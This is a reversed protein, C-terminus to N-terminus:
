TSNLSLIIIGFIFLVVGVALVLYTKTKANKFEGYVLGWLYGWMGNSYGIGTSIVVSVVPASFSHLINGGFHCFASIMSLITVKGLGKRSSGQMFFSIVGHNKNKKIITISSNVVYALFAGLSLLGMITLSSFGRPRLNTKLGLSLAISYFPVLVASAILLLVINRVRSDKKNNIISEAQYQAKNSDAINNIVEDSKEIDKDRMLGSIQCVITGMVILFAALLIMSLSANRPIGGILASSILGSFIMGSSMISSSLLLGMRNIVLLQLQMGLSYIAGCCLIFFTLVINSTMEKIIPILGDITILTWTIILSFFYMWTLFFQIPYEELYKVVQLWSGWLFSVLIMTLLAIEISM